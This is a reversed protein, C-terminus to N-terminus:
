ILENSKHEKIEYVLFGKCKGVHGAITEENNTAVAIKM